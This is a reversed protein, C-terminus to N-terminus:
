RQGRLGDLFSRAASVAGATRHVAEAAARAATGKVGPMAAAADAFPDGTQEVTRTGPPVHVRFEDPGAPETSIDDLESWTALADGSYCILRLLCGTEADVIADAPFFMLPGLLRAEGGPARTVRLQRAARGRYTLEAGGCLRARLLWCSDALFVIQERLPAATGADDERNTLLRRRTM